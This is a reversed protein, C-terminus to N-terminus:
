THSENGRKLGEEIGAKYAAQTLKEVFKVCVEVQEIELGSRLLFSKLLSTLDSFEFAM